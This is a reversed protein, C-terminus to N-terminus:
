DPEDPIELSFFTPDSFYEQFARGLEGCISKAEAFDEKVYSRVQRILDELEAAMVNYKPQLEPPIITHVKGTIDPAGSYQALMEQMAQRKETYFKLSSEVVDYRLALLNCRDVLDAKKANILPVFDNPNFTPPAISNGVMPRMVEWFPRHLVKLDNAKRMCDDFYRKQTYYGNAIQQTKLMVTLAVSKEESTRSDMDRRLTEKTAQKALFWAVAGGLAAGGFGSLLTALDAPSPSWGFGIPREIVPAAFGVIVSGGVLGLGFVLWTHPEDAM